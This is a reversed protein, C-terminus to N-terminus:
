PEDYSALTVLMRDRAAPAPTSNDMAMVAEPSPGASYDTERSVLYSGLVALTMLSAFVLRRGFAFDFSFFGAIGPRNEVEVRRIIGAYFGPSPNFEESGRLTAFLLDIERMSNVEERCGTCTNLHAEIERRDAAPLTGALYGELSETVVSHM